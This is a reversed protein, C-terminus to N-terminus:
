SLYEIEQEEELESEPIPDAVFQRCDPCEPYREDM